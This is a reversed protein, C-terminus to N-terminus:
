AAVREDAKPTNNKDPKKDPEPKAAPEEEGPKEAKPKKSADADDDAVPKKDESDPKPATTESPTKEAATKADGPKPAKTDTRKPTTRSKRAQREHEGSLATYLKKLDAKKTADVNAVQAATPLRQLREDMEIFLEYIRRELDRQRDKLKKRENFDSKGLAKLRAEIRAFDDARKQRYEQAKDYQEKFIKERASNQAAKDLDYAQVFLSVYSKWNEEIHQSRVPQPNDSVRDDTANTPTNDDPSKRTPLAPGKGESWQTLTNTAGDFSSRMLNMDGDHIKKQSEDLIVGWEENGELIAESAKQYLPLARQAWVQLSVKDNPARGRQMDMSQQLLERVESEHEDLFERVRRTLLLRTYQEQQPNLSYRKSIQQVAQEMMADVDWIMPNAPHTLATPKQDAAANDNGNTQADATATLALSLAIGLVGLGFRTHGIWTFQRTRTKM